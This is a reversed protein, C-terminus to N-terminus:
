GCDTIYTVDSSQKAASRCIGTRLWKSCDVTWKSPQSHSCVDFRNLMSSWRGDVKAQFCMTRGYERIVHDVISDVVDLNVCDVSCCMNHFTVIGDFVSVGITALMKGADSVAAFNFASARAFIDCCNSDLFAQAYERSARCVKFKSCVPDYVGLVERIKAKCQEKRLDWEDELVHVLQVGASNCMNTKVMLSKRCGALESHWYLGDFEFGIM